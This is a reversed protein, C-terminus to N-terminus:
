PIVKVRGTAVFFEIEADIDAFTNPDVDTDEPDTSYFTQATLPTTGDTDFADFVVPIARRDLAFDESTHFRDSYPQDPLVGARVRFRQRAFNSSVEITGDAKFVHAPFSPPFADPNDEDYVFGDLAYDLMVGNQFRPEVFAQEDVDYIRIGRLGKSSVWSTQSNFTEQEVSFVDSLLCTQNPLPRFIGEVGAVAAYYDEDPSTLLLHGQERLRIIEERKLRRALILTDIVPMQVDTESDEVYRGGYALATEVNYTGAYVGAAKLLTFYERAAFAAKSSTFWGNRIALPVIIASILGIIGLVVLLEVLSLGRSGRLRARVGTHRACVSHKKAAGM